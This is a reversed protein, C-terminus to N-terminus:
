RNRRNDFRTAYMFDLDRDWTTEVDDFETIRDVNSTDDRQHGASQGNAGSVVPIEVRHPQMM